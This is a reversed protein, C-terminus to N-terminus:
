AALRGNSIRKFPQQGVRAAKLWQEARTHYGKYEPAHFEAESLRAKGEYRSTFENLREDDASCTLKLGVTCGPLHREWAAQMVGELMKYHRSPVLFSDHIPLVPIGSNGMALMVDEAIQSDTYQLRIGTGDYFYQAIASHKRQFDALLQQMYKRRHPIGEWKRRGNRDKIGAEEMMAGIAADEDSANILKQFSTKLFERGEPSYGDLKYPDGDPMSKGVKAYLLRIHQGSYDLERTPQGDIRIHKRWRKPIEQWWGGYFRGGQAFSTDGNSFIRRLRIRTPEFPMADTARELEGNLQPIHADPIHLDIWHQALRENILQLSKRMRRTTATEVYDIDDGRKERKVCEEVDRYSGDKKKRRRMRKEKWTKKPGRLIIVEECDCLEAMHPQVGYKQLREILKPTARMRSLRGKEYKEVTRQGHQDKKHAARFGPQFEILEHERLRDILCVIRDGALKLANYRMPRKRYWKASRAHGLWRKADIKHVAYLDMILTKLHQGAGNRPKAYLQRLLDAIAREVEAYSSTRHLNLARSNSYHETHQM